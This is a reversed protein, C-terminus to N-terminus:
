ITINSSAKNKKPKPMPLEDYTKRILACLEERDDLNDVVFSPKAGPYAPAEEYGLDAGVKTKKVYLTNDCVLGVVKGDCYVCFDGFMKKYTIEGAERMQDCVYQVFELSSAM